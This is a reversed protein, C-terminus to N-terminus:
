GSRFVFQTLRECYADFDRIPRTAVGSEMAAIAVAPAIKTILRPDFPKPILSDPGFAIPQDGYAKAVLESPEALALDALSRVCALVMAENIETAGVDLAARFIAVDEHTM